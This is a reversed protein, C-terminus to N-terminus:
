PVRLPHRKSLVSRYVASWQRSIATYGYRSVALARLEQPKYDALRNLVEAIGGVLAESSEPAVLVGARPDLVEPVGGVDTAVSPCGCTMAEILVCGQTEWLSPLVFIDATGMIAAVRERSLVGHFKVHEELGLQRAQTQLKGRLPGDGVVDLRAPTGSARLEALAQILHHHGKIEVLNGVTLLRVESREPSSPSAPGSRLCFLEDDVTNPVPVVPTRGALVALRRGLDESVPCVVDACRFARHAVAREKPSLHGLAVTSAHETIVVPARSAAAVVAAPLGAGFVHAHVVDPIWADSLRLRAVITLIGLMKALSGLRPVGSRRFRIRYTLVGDENSRHVSFLKEMRGEARWTIVRVDHALAAARAQERCFSGHTPRDPWPYWEPMVLVRLRRSDAPSKILARRRSM